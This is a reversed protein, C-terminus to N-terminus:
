ITNGTRSVNYKKQLEKSLNRHDMEELAKTLKKLSANADNKRWFDLMETKCREVGDGKYNLEIKRLDDRKIGLRIGLHFWETVGWLDATLRRLDLKSGVPIPPM